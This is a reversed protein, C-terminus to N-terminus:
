KKKASKKKTSKKALKKFLRKPSIANTLMATKVAYIPSGDDNFQNRLRRAEVVAPRIELTTGDDLVIVSWQENASKVEVRDSPDTPPPASAKKAKRAM